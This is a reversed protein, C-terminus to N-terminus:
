CYKKRLNLVYEISKRVGNEQDALMKELLDEPPYYYDLPKIVNLDYPPEEVKFARQGVEFIGGTGNPRRFPAVYPYCMEVNIRTLTSEDLLIKFCEETDINGTGIPVGCVRYDEGDHIVIHDKFHSTFTYPALKKVTDVPEEWAMMGNGIDCTVGVWPSDVEKIMRIIEDSTEYEHNEIALKIRFKKLLPVIQLIDGPVSKLEETKDGGVSIYTRIVDAGIQRAVDIVKMLHKPDTGKTDIEAYLGYKEIEKRVKILHDPDDGGLTGWDPHLNKDHIINIQVGDLGFEVTKRIFDFIDMRRNQFFLHYSETELGIKMMSGDM